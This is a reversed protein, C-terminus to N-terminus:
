QWRVVHHRRAPSHRQPVANIAHRLARVLSIQVDGIEGETVLEHCRHWVPMWHRTHDVSLLTNHREAAAVMRDADEVSTALPKECFIGKAGAEAAAVVLDAHRNDGTAVTVIDLQAKELMERYDDYMELGPNTAKFQAAFEDRQEPVLDCGAVVEANELSEAGQAHRNGIGRCGIVGVRYM